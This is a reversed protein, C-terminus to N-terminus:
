PWARTDPVKPKAFMCSRFCLGNDAVEPVLRAQSLDVREKIAQESHDQRRIGGIAQSSLVRRVACQALIDGLGMELM